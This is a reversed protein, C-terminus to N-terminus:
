TPFVPCVPKKQWYKSPPMSRAESMTPCSHMGVTFAEAVGPHTTVDCRLWTVVNKNYAMIPMVGAAAVSTEDCRDVSGAQPRGPSLSRGTGM